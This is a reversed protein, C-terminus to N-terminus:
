KMWWKKSSIIPLSKSKNWWQYVPVYEEKEKKKEDMMENYRRLEEEKEKKEKLKCEIEYEEIEWDYFTFYQPSSPVCIKCLHNEYDEETLLAGFCEECCHDLCHKCLEETDNGDTFTDEEGCLRCSM